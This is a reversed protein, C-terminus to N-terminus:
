NNAEAVRMLIDKEEKLALIHKKFKEMDDLMVKQAVKMENYAKSQREGRNKIKELSRETDAVSYYQKIQNELTKAGQMIEEGLAKMKHQHERKNKSLLSQATSSADQIAKIAKEQSEAEKRLKTIEVVLEDKQKQELHLNNTTEQAKGKANEKESKFIALQRTDSCNSQHLETTESVTDAIRANLEEIECILDTQSYNAFSEKILDKLETEAKLVADTMERMDDYYQGANSLDAESLPFESILLLDAVEIPLVEKLDEPISNILSARATNEAQEINELYVRLYSDTTNWESRRQIEPGINDCLCSDINKIEAVYASIMDSGKSVETLGSLLVESLQKSNKEITSMIEALKTISQTFDKEQNDFIDKEQESLGEMYDIATRHRAECDALLASTVKAVGKIDKEFYRVMMQCESTDSVSSLFELSARINAILPEIEQPEYKFADKVEM